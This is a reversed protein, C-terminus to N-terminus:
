KKSNACLGEKSCSSLLLINEIHPTHPFQDLPQCKEVKYYPMLDKLDEAQTKPNCSVYVIKKPMLKLLVEVGKKELGSRPPDIILTDFVGEDMELERVDKAFFTINERDHREASEMADCVAAKNIEVALVEKVFHSFLLAMTGIGSFLDLVKDEPGPDAFELVKEYLLNVTFRNPQFFSSPSVHFVMERGRVTIKEQLSPAGSLHMESYTTPVGKQAHKLTLFISVEDGDFCSLVAEKFRNLQSQRLAFRPNGSVVLNVMKQQDTQDARLILNILLGEGRFPHFAELQEEEWWTFVANKVKIFWTPSLHCQKLNIVRGKSHIKILGLYRNGERDSSFTYEMKNRYHWIEPSGIIPNVKVGDEFYPAFLSRITNEKELLQAKYNLQQFSCGGCEGVHTCRLATRDQSPAIVERIAGRLTKRKKGVVRVKAEEGKILAPVEVEHAEFTALAHGKKSYSIAKVLIEEEM